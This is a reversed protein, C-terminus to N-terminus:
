GARPAPMAVGLKAAWDGITKWAGADPVLGASRCELRLRQAREGPLRLPRAPDAPPQSRCAAVVPDIAGTFGDLGTFRAPDLVQVFLTAGFRRGPDDRGHGALGATLAEVMWGLGTGKHGSEVGGLPLLSGQRPPLAVSPDDTARGQEDQVWAGPLRRGERACITTLGNTTISTSVDVLVPEGGTPIGVGIPSPSFVGKTGGHPAVTSAAPSSSMLLLVMGREAVRRAYPALAAIHHSRRVSVTGTGFRAAREIAEDLARLMLWPGPLRRGDWVLVAGHDALTEAKGELTLGGTEIENLYTPVLQLGHTGHGMLEGEILVEAVAAAKDEPMAMSTLLRQVLHQCDDADFRQTMTPPRTPAPVDVRPMALALQGEKM